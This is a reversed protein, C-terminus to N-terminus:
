RTRRLHEDYRDDAIPVNKRYWRDWNGAKDGAVLLVGQRHPDFAFLIRMQSRGGSGPRLEKMNHHRSTTVRDALPRGLQPGEIRLVEIAAVVQVRTEPDLGVLWQEVEKVALVTWM